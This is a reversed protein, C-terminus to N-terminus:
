KPSKPGDVPSALEKLQWVRVYDLVYDDPMQSDDIGNNDWGGTVNTFMIDSEVSSIRPSEWELVVKGNAYYVAKGPTWLLGITIFGDKDPVIYNTTSGTQKHDKDYGDWHMAINYRYQGWRGLYEYIDFEMAGNRTDARKWQPGAQVGRDPMLWFAPWMGPGKTTKMRSEFYGYRQVWKGYTDLFGTAYDTQKKSPDDNHFGTKKEYHLRAVGGGVILNDKSFHSRKDWYNDGYVNWKTEDVTTGDFEEDFTKVWDGEVPPRKGVWDPLVAPAPVGLKISEVVFSQAADAPNASIKVGSAVDSSFKTGTNPEGNWETKVSDKIGVWPTGPVFSASLEGEAGPAIPTTLAAVETPGPSSLIQLRPSVPTQGINKLKVTVQVGERLDWRGLAPKYLVAQGPKKEAFSIKLADGEITAEAPALTSIQKAADVAIGNGLIYGDKPKVRVSEPNVPVPEGVTGTAVISEIRYNQAEATKSTFLLMKYIEATRLKFSPKKGYAYGPFLTIKNKTGPKVATTETNSGSPGNANERNDVRLAPYIAVSGTNVIVAEIHGYKSIDIVSGSPGKPPNYELGPYNAKGPQITVNLGPAAPDTSAEYSIQGETGPTPAIRDLIDAAGFDVMQFSPTAPAPATTATQAWLPTTLQPLVPLLAALLLISKSKM